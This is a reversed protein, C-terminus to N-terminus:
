AAVLRPPVDWGLRGLRDITQNIAHRGRGKLPIQNIVQDVFDHRAANDTGFYPMLNALVIAAGAGSVHWRGVEPLVKDVHQHAEPCHEVCQRRFIDSLQKAKGVELRTGTLRAMRRLVPLHRSEVVLICLPTKRTPTVVRRTKGRMDIVGAMWAMDCVTLPSRTTM